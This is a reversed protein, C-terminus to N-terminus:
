MRFWPLCHLWAQGEWVEEAYLSKGEESGARQVHVGREAVLVVVCM